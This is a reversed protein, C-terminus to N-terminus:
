SLTVNQAASMTALLYKSTYARREHVVGLLQAAAYIQISTLIYIHM